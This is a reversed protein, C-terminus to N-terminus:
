TSRISSARTGEAPGTWRPLRLPEIFARGGSKARLTMHLDYIAVIQRWDTSATTSADSHV